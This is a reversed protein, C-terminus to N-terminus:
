VKPVGGAELMSSLINDRFRVMGSIWRDYDSAKRAFYPKVETIVVARAGEKVFRRSLAEGIGNAGGTVVIVKNEVRM